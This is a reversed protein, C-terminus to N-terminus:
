LGKSLTMVKFLEGMEHPMTLTQIERSVSLRKLLDDQQEVLDLIGNDLLFAAQTTYENLTLGVQAACDAVFSFDVHATIDQLGVLILPNPQAFHRYHCMLTGECRQRHYYVERPFGYDILLIVGKKLSKSVSNIWAKARLNIESMYYDVDALFDKKIKSAEELLYESEPEAVIWVFSENEWGVYCEKIQQNEIIFRHVPLADLVENALMIGNFDSPLTELWQVWKLLHPAKKQFAEFQRQKLDASTELIFYHSPMVQQNQLYTLIDIAMKGSGAGFELIDGAGLQDFFKQCQKAISYSFLSSIEPATTFDGQAGIKESGASYYGLGPAYLALNMFEEFSIKGEQQDIKTIILRLLEQAHTIAEASPAPLGAPPHYLRNFVM